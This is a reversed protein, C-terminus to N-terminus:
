VARRLSRQANLLNFHLVLYMAVLGIAIGFLFYEKDECDPCYSMCHNELRKNDHNGYDFGGRSSWVEEFDNMADGMHPLEFDNMNQTAAM